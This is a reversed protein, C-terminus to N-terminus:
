QVVSLVIAAPMVRVCHQLVSSLALRSLMSIRKLEQTDPVSVLFSSAVLIPNTVESIWEFWDLYPSVTFLFSLVLKFM